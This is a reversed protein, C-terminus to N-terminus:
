CYSLSKAVRQGIIAGQFGAGGCTYIGQVSLKFQTSQTQQTSVIGNCTVTSSVSSISAQSGSSASSADTTPGMFGAQCAAFAVSTFHVGTATTYQVMSDLEASSNAGENEAACSSAAAAQRANELSQQDAASVTNASTAIAVVGEANAVAIATSNSAGSSSSSTTSGSGYAAGTASSANGSSYTLSILSTSDAMSSANAYSPGGQISTSNTTTSIQSDWAKSGNYNGLFSVARGSSAAKPLQWYYGAYQVFASADAIVPVSAGFTFNLPIKTGAKCTYQAPAPHATALPLIAALAAILHFM